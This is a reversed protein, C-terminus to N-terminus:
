REGIRTTTKIYDIEDKSFRSYDYDVSHKNRFGTYGINDFVSDEEDDDYIVKEIVM